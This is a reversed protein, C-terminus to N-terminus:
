SKILNFAREYWINDRYNHAMVQTTAEAQSYIGLSLYCEVMRYLSEPIYSVTPYDQVIKKYRNLAALHDGNSQYFRAVKLEHASLHDMIARNKEKSDKAYKSNPYRIIVQDFAKKADMTPAQDRDPTPIQEYYCLGIMYMAYAVDNHSPHLQIFVRFDEIAEEYKKAHYHSYGAMIQSKLALDSYPHQREVEAFYKAAKTYSSNDFLEKGKEFLVKADKEEYIEKKDSCGSIFFGLLFIYILNNQLIPKKFM